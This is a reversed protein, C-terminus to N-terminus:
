DLGDDQAAGAGGSPSALCPPLLLDHISDEAIWSLGPIEVDTCIDRRVRRGMTAVGLMTTTWGMMRCRALGARPRPGVHRCGRTSDLMTRTWDMTWDRHLALGARPRPWVRRCCCIM